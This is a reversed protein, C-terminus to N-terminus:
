FCHETYPTLRLSVNADSLTSADGKPQAAQVNASEQVLELLFQRRKDSSTEM